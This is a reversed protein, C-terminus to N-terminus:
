SYPLYIVKESYCSQSEVPIITKDAIIYDAGMTRPYGLYNVQIPAVRYSFIGTRSDQTLGSLDIAIDIALDIGGKAIEIDSQTEADIFHDFAKHLRGRMEDTASALSFAYTEFQNRDHIEFLEAILFAVPHNKFDSSFYGLRIKQGEPRKLIPDLTPNFLYKDQVYNESSKKHLFADDNFALLVFPNVAKEDAMVEKSVREFSDALGSWSCIKM